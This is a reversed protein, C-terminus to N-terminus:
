RIRNRGNVCAMEGFLASQPKDFADIVLTTECVM